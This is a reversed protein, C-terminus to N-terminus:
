CGSGFINHQKTLPRFVGGAGQRASCRLVQRARSMAAINNLLPFFNSREPASPTEPSCGNPESGSGSRWAWVPVFRRREERMSPTEQPHPNRQRLAVSMRESRTGHTRLSKWGLRALPAILM